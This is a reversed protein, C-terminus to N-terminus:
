LNVIALPKITQRAIFNMTEALVRDKENDMTIIHYSNDLIVKHVVASSVGGEVLDASRTSTTDDDKAHLILTPASAKHLNGRLYRMMREVQYIGTMPSRAAGTGTVTNNKMQAAIWQQVREDKLGFPAREPYSLLYRLPTYYALARLFRFRTVNWGDYYLTTSYLCLSNIDASRELALALALNAGACLGAVSVHEYERKLKDFHFNVQELWLEWQTTQGHSQADSAGCGHIPPISVSFGNRRLGRAVYHMQFPHGYLGHLLLVAHDGFETYPSKRNMPVSFVFLGAWVGPGVERIIVQLLTQPRRFM